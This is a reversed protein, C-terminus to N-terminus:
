INCFTGWWSCAHELCAIILFIGNVTSFSGLCVGVCECLHAWLNPRTPVLILPTYICIYITLIIQIHPGFEEQLLRNIERSNGSVMRAYGTEKQGLRGIGIRESDTDWWFRIQPMLMTYPPQENFFGWFLWFQSENIIKKYWKPEALRSFFPM